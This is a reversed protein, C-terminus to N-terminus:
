ITVTYDRNPDNGVYFIPFLFYTGSAPTNAFRYKVIVVNIDSNLTVVSDQNVSDFASCIDNVWGSYNTSPNVWNLSTWYSMRWGLVTSQTPDGWRNSWYIYGLSTPSKQVLLSARNPPLARPNDAGFFYLVQQTTSFFRNTRIGYPGYTGGLIATEDYTEYHSNLSFGYSSSTLNFGFEDEITRIYYTTM